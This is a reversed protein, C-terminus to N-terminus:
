RLYHALVATLVVSIVTAAPVGIVGVLRSTDAKANAAKVYDQSVKIAEKADELQIQWQAHLELEHKAFAELNQRTILYPGTMEHAADVPVFLGDPLSASPQSAPQSAARTEAHNDRTLQTNIARSHACGFLLCIAIQRKSVM